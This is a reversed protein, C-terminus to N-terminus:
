SAAVGNPKDLHYRRKGRTTLGLDIQRTERNKPGGFIAEQSSTSVADSRRAHGPRRPPATRDRATGEASAAAHRESARLPM